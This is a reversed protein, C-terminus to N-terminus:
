ELYVFENSNLLVLCLDALARTEAPVESPRLNPQYKETWDETFEFPEGTMEEVMTRTVSKPFEFDVPKTARHHALMESMHKECLKKEQSTPKRGYALVFAQEIQKTQRKTTASIRRAMALASDHANKSNFLAFVQPTVITAERKELSTTTNPCNFVELVPNLLSRIQVTYITRRNRQERTPSPRYIPALSGMIHRPQLAAELNIEPFVPPGGRTESLEGAVFLM